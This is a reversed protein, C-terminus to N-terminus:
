MTHSDQHLVIGRHQDHNRQDQTSDHRRQFLTETENRQRTQELRQLLTNRELLRRPNQQFFRALDQSGSIVIKQQSPQAKVNHKAVKTFRDFDEDITGIEESRQM